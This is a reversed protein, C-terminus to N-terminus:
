EDRERFLIGANQMESIAATIQADGLGSRGLSWYVKTLTYEDCYAQEAESRGSFTTLLADAMEGAEHVAVKTAYYGSGIPWGALEDRIAEWLDSM